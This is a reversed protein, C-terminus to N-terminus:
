RHSFWAMAPLARDDYGFLAQNEWGNGSSADTPDWGNDTVATWTSEGRVASRRDPRRTGSSADTPPKSSEM